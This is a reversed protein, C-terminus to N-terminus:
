LGFEALQHKLESEPYKSRLRYAYKNAEDEDGLAMEIRVGLMLAEAELKGIDSLRQFFARASMYEEREYQLDAMNWLADVYDPRVQLAARFYEEAKEHDPIRRVCSGANTWAVERTEYLRNRAAKLLEAEAERYEGRRCLYTGYHNRIIPDDGDLRIARRYHREALRLEDLQEYLLAITSHTMPNRNDYRLSEELNDKASNLRGQRMYHTGLQLHNLAAEEDETRPQQTQNGACGAMVLSLFLALVIIKSLKM